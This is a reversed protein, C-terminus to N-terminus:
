NFIWPLPKSTDIQQMAWILWETGVTVFQNEYHFLFSVLKNILTSGKLNMHLQRYINQMYSNWIIPSKQIQNEMVNVLM